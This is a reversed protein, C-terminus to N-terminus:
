FIELCRDILLSKASEPQLYQLADKTECFVQLIISSLPLGGPQVDKLHGQHWEDIHFKTSSDLCISQPTISFLKRTGVFIESSLQYGITFPYPADQQFLDTVFAVLRIDTAPYLSGMIVINRCHIVGKLLVFRKIKDLKDM